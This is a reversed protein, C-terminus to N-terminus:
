RSSSSNKGAEFAAILADRISWVALDHFDNADSNQTQLTAIGLYKKAIEDLAPPQLAVDSITEQSSMNLPM